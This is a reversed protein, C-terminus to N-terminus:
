PTALTVFSYGRDRLGRIMQPLARATQM